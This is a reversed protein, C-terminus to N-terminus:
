SGELAGYYKYAKVGTSDPYCKVTLPYTVASGNNAYTVQGSATVEGDPIVIRVVDDGDIVEVVWVGRTATGAKVEVVGTDYSDAGYYAALTDANTEMLTFTYEVDHETAVTRVTDGNQWAKIDTTTENIAELVGDETNYGLGSFAVDLTTSSDTPLTTGAEALSVEGTVGVRVNSATTAM